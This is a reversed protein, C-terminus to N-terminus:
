QITNQHDLMADAQFFHRTSVKMLNAKGEPGDSVEADLGTSIDSMFTDLSALKNVQFTEGFTSLLAQMAYSLKPDKAYAVILVTRLIHVLTRPPGSSRVLTSQLHTTFMNVWKSSWAVLAQKVPTVKM